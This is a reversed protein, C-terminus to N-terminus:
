FLTSFLLLFVDCFLMSRRFLSSSPWKPVKELRLFSNKATLLGPLVVYNKADEQKADEIRRKFLLFRQQM